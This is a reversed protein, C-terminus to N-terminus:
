PSKTIHDSIEKIKHLWDRMEEITNIGMTLEPNDLSQRLASKWTGYFSIVETTPEGTKKHKGFRYLNVSNTKGDDRLEYQENLKIIM